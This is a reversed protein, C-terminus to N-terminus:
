NRTPPDITAVLAIAIMGSFVPGLILVCSVSYWEPGVITGRMLGLGIAITAVAFHLTRLPFRM